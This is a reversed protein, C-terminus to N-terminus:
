SVKLRKNKTMSRLIKVDTKKRAVEIGRRDIGQDKGHGTAVEAGTGVIAVGAEGVDTGVVVEIETVVPDSAVEIEAEDVIVVVVADVAAIGTM